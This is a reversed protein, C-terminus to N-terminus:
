EHDYRPSSMEKAKPDSNNTGEGTQKPAKIINLAIKKQFQYATVYTGAYDFFLPHVCESDVDFTDNKIDGTM